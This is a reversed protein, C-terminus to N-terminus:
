LNENVTISPISQGRWIYTLGAEKIYNYTGLDEGHEGLYALNAQNLLGALPKINADAQLEGNKLTLYYMHLCHMFQLVLDMYAILIDGEEDWVPLESVNETVMKQIHLMQSELFDQALKLDPLSLEVMMNNYHGIVKTNPLSQKYAGDAKDLEKYEEDSLEPEEWVNYHVYSPFDKPWGCTENGLEWFHVPITFRLLDKNNSAGDGAVLNWNKFNIKEM